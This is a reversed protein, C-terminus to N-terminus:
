GCRRLEDYFRDNECGAASMEFLTLFALGIAFSNFCYVDSPTMDLLIYDNSKNM